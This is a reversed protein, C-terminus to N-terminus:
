LYSSQPHSPKPFLRINRVFLAVRNTYLPPPVAQERILCSAVLFFIRSANKGMADRSQSFSFAPRQFSALVCLYSMSPLLGRNKGGAGCTVREWKWSQPVFGDVPAGDGKVQEQRQASSEGSYEQAAEEIPVMPHDRHKQSQSCVWCPGWRGGSFIKERHM